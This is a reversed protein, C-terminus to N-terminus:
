EGNGICQLFHRLRPSITLHYSARHSPFVRASPLPFTVVAFHNYREEAYNLAISPLIRVFGDDPEFADARYNIKRDSYIGERLAMEAAQPSRQALWGDWFAEINNNVPTGSVTNKPM